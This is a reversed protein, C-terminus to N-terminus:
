VDVKVARGKRHTGWDEVIQIEYEIGDRIMRDDAQLEFETFVKLIQKTRDAEELQLIEFGTLPQTSASICKFTTEDGDVFLGDIYKGPAKRKFTVLESRMIRTFSSRKM